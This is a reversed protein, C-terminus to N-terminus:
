NRLIRNISSKSLGFIEQLEIRTTGNGFAYRIEKDRVIKKPSPGRVGAHFKNGIRGDPQLAPCDEIDFPCTVCNPWLECGNFEHPLLREIGDLIYTEAM